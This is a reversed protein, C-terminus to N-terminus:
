ATDKLLASRGSASLELQVDGVCTWMGLLTNNHTPFMKAGMHKCHRRFQMFFMICDDMFIKLLCSTRYIFM